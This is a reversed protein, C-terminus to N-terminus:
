AQKRGLVIRQIGALDNRAQVDRFGAAELLPRAADYQGEGIELALLGGDVLYRPAGAVIRRIVDLGDPGAVLARPDEYLRISASLGPFADDEVYPPNACIVNFPGIGEGLADFLDGKLNSIQSKLGHMGANENALALADDSIDTAVVQAGPFTKAIAVAVCGTGTCLELIRPPAGIEPGQPATETRSRLRKGRLEELVVEVLHETEPRPVLVPARTKIPISFFEWEGLIYPIPECALRREVFIQFEPVDADEGYHLPLRSRPVGLLHAMLFEADARPTDSVEALLQVADHIRDLVTAM